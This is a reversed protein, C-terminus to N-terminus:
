DKADYWRKGIKADAVLPVAFEAARTMEKELMAKVQEAEREPAEVILEDHIQLILKAELGAKQLAHAVRIMAIKILDAATGQIPTNMAVREGFARRMKNAQKMEPIERRRGYLTEVYGHEAAFAKAWEMYDRIAPYKEFYRAIFNKAEKVSVGIDQSLSYEGIGYIIGFNVAKASKRMEGTVMEMPVGYVQAATATHIDAGERFAACLAEDGSIHALLRLEIQSYDADVLVCGEKATFFKRLERGKETRVPINQLNPEASSLRGTLTMTQKFTTHVRGSESIVKLLGEGYTSKLKAAKRYDLILQVLPDYVALKELTEADTSYGSKTKKYHPLKREEFLVEGLQKPSNINFEHGALAYIQQAYLEIEEELSATFRELGSRDLLFGEKEMDALVYALPKEVEVYLKELAETLSPRFTDYLLFYLAPDPTNEVVASAARFVAGAFSIGNDAPSSLYALLSLDEMDCAAELGRNWLTHLTEKVSWVLLTKEATFLTHAKDWSIRYGKEGDFALCGDEAPLVALRCASVSEADEYIVEAPLQAEPAPTEEGPLQELLKRFELKTYLERLAPVNQGTYVYGEASTDIPADLRIEALFRSTYAMEKGALLKDKLAGKIDQINAYVGEVDGYTCILKVAGKEGIGAVGPINDSSDGMIAKVDILRKPDVGYQEFIEKVGTVRTENTAALHVTVRNNVLQFSDRDGTVIICETGRRSFNETLTGILDDAEFGALEVVTLGLAAAVEKAYPMQLALEEPMGKRNAKYFDCAKHRFTPEKRDFAIAAYKLADGAEQMARRIINVFGFIANTPLGEQNSLPRVGYFARNLISNGDFVILKEM